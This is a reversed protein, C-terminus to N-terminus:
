VNWLIRARWQVVTGIQKVDDVYVPSAGELTNNDFKLWLCNDTTLTTMGMDRHHKSLERYWFDGSDDLGYLPRLLQVAQDPELELESAPKEIFVDRALTGASQLYAQTVDQSWIKFGLIGALALSFRLSRQQVKSSSRVMIDKEHDRHGQIVFIAKWIEKKTGSDKISLVYRGGLKNAGEPIDRRHIVKFTGRDLLGRFENRKAAQMRLDNARPDRPAILETIHM